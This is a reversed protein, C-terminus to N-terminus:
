EEPRAPYIDYLQALDAVDVRFGAKASWGGPRSARSGIPSRGRMIPIISSLLIGLGRSRLRAIADVVRSSWRHDLLWAQGFRRSRPFGSPRLKTATLPCRVPVLSTTPASPRSALVVAPTWCHVSRSLLATV